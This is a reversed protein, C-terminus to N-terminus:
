SLVAVFGSHAQSSAAARAMKEPTGPQSAYCSQADGFTRSTSIPASNAHVTEGEFAGTDREASITDAHDIIENSVPESLTNVEDVAVDWEGPRVIGVCM